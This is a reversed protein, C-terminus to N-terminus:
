DASLAKPRIGTMPYTQLKINEKHSMRMLTYRTWEGVTVTTISLHTFIATNKNLM